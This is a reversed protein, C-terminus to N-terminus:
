KNMEAEIMIRSLKKFKILPTWGLIKKAKSYDGCLCNVDTPRFCREDIKVYEEWELGLGHFTEHLFDKVSYSEGTAIVFDDPQQQQLMLWMAKCFEPAYGWDRKSEINGLRLSSQLGKKIRVAAKVIKKTVFTDGRRPSEHNFLIGCCIFLNYAERYHICMSHAYAKACAYPSRPNFPTSESQPAVSNGFMESTSAQYIKSHPSFMRVAELLNTVGIADALGTYGPIEFSVRVHSMAALNYIEDPQISKIIGSLNMPDVMDGYHIELLDFIPDIRATNFSSCRRIIGHVEYGQQLLQEALYSGDQGSIGTILAKKKM